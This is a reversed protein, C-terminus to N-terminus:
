IVSQTAYKYIQTCGINSEKNKNFNRCDHMTYNHSEKIKIKQCQCLRGFIYVANFHIFYRSTTTLKSRKSDM